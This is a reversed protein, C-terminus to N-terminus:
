ILLLPTERIPKMMGLKNLKSTITNVSTNTSTKTPSPNSYNSSKPLNLLYNPNLSVWKLWVKLLFRKIGVNSKKTFNVMLKCVETSTM